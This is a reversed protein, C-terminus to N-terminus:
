SAVEGGRFLIWRGRLGALPSLEGARIFMAEAEERDGARLLRKGLRLLRDVLKKRIIRALDPHDDHRELAKVLVRLRGRSLKMRDSILQEDHLRYFSLIEPAPAFRGRAALRLWLDWDESHTMGADFGGAERVADRRVVVTSTPVFNGRLLPRLVDGSPLRKPRIHLERGTLDEAQERAYSLVVGPDDFLPVQAALKGKAWRDDSDLLAVLAGRAEEIGRNRAVSPGANEQRIVRVGAGYAEDATGDTSGDDVVLIELDSWDQERVSGIAERLPKRRNWTPIVVSVTPEAM